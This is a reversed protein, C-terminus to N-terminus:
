AGSPLASHEVAVKASPERIHVTSIDGTDARARPEHRGAWGQRLRQL